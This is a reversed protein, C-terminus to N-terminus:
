REGMAPASVGSHEHLVVDADELPLAIPKATKRIFSEHWLQGSLVAVLAQNERFGTVKGDRCRRVLGNVATSDFLGADRVSEPSLAEEVWGPAGPAFFAAADPARYPQKARGVVAAPIRSRAWRRLISKEHLGALRSREPLASAFAFMRDDLFPYRGEVGHAMAMRDGQTALLYSPLLVSVELYAAKELDSWRGFEPPLSERWEALVDTGSLSARTEPTYFDKIRRTLAIRPSHSFLPDDVPGAELFFRRWLDGGRSDHALYPYLRDLLRPRIASEPHRLCFRRVVTEKFIDYGLFLEDSGEGTLVVKIGQERVRQALLYMPAPATRVMPVEAHRVVEPFVRAIDGLGAVEVTHASGVACAVLEQHAREDLQPDDFAISFTRLQHPSAKAALASTITSDLGGSLYAGVPVDARLRFEVASRLLGDLQELADTPEVAAHHYSPSWWRHVSLRGAEWRAWCGPELQRVGAFVTRAGRPAWWTFIEDLGALDPAARVLGSAFLAKCESAFVFGRNTEAYYMPRVGFRDRILSLSGDRRDHVAFAFQGNLRHLGEAGWARWLELLVETDSRTRFRHGLDVLTQRIEPWNYIEGNFIIVLAGDETVMPQQGSKLDVISLRVHALGISSGVSFGYGDPGRHRIASAMRSLMELDPPPGGARAVGAIGCM